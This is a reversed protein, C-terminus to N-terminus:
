VFVTNVDLEKKLAEFLPNSSRGRGAVKIEDLSEFRFFSKDSTLYKITLSTVLGFNGTSGTMFKTIDYGSVNKLTKCGYKIETGDSAYFELGTFYNSAASDPRISSFIGGATRGVGVSSGDIPFYINERKLEDFLSTWNCGAGITIFGNNKDIEIINSFKRTSLFMSNDPAKFDKPFTSGNGMIVIKIGFRNSFRLIDSILERNDPYIILTDGAQVYNKHEMLAIIKNQKQITLM